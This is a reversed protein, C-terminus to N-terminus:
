HELVLSILYKLRRFYSSDRWIQECSSICWLNHSNAKNSVIVYPIYRMSWFNFPSFDRNRPVPLAPVNQSILLIRPFSPIQRPIPLIKTNRNWHDTPQRRPKSSTFSFLHFIFKETFNAFFLNAQEYSFRSSFSLFYNQRLRGNEHFSLCKM